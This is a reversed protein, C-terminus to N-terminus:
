LNRISTTIQVNFGSFSGRISTTVFVNFGSFAQRLSTKVKVRFDSDDTIWFMKSFAM